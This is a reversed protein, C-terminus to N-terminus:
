YKSQKWTMSTKAIARAIGTTISAWSNKNTGGVCVFSVRCLTNVLLPPEQLPKNFSHPQLLKLKGVPHRPPLSLFLVAQFHLPTGSMPTSSLSSSSAASFGKDKWDVMSQESTCPNIRCIEAISCMKLHSQLWCLFM